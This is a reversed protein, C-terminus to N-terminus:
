RIFEVSMPESDLPLERLIFDGQPCLEEVRNGRLSVNYETKRMCNARKGESRGLSKCSM